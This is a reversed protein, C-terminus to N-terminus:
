LNFYGYGQSQFIDDDCNVTINYNGDGYDYNSLPTYPTSNVYVTRIAGFIGSDKITDNYFLSINFTETSDFSTKLISEDLETEGLITIDLTKTQNHYYTNNARITISNSGYNFETNNCDFTINYQGNDIYEVSENVSSYTGANIKYYIDGVSIDRSQGIDNYTITINFIAGSNLITNQSPQNIILSTEAFITMNDRFYGADTGNNWLTLTRFKGYKTITDSIDWDGFYLDNGSGFSSNIFTHNLQDNLVLPNFISHNINGNSIPSSFTGNFHVLNTYNFTDAPTTVVYKKINMLLNSSTANLFWFTGNGANLVQINKYNSLYDTIIDDTKNTGGNWVEINTWRSSITFNITYNNFRSDFYNLGDSKTVNWFVDQGNGLVEFSSDVKLDTKTYNIQVRTINCSVDWWDASVNFDITGSLDKLISETMLYKGKQFSVDSVSKNNIELGIQSPKPTNNLPVFDIEVAADVKSGAINFENEGNDLVYNDNVGDGGITTLEGYIEIDVGAGIEEINLYFTDNYTESCNFLSGINTMNHWHPSNGTIVSLDVIPLAYVLNFPKPISGDLESNYLSISLRTLLPATRNLYISINEIYGVGRAKFSIYHTNVADIVRASTADEYLITKNPANIDDVDININSTNYGQFKPAPEQFINANDLNSFSITSTNLISQHLTINVKDGVGNSSPISDSTKPLIYQDGFDIINGEEYGKDLFLSNFLPLGLNTLIMGFSLLLLILLKKKSNSRGFKM